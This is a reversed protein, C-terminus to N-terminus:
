DVVNYYQTQLRLTELYDDSASRWKRFGLGTLVGSGITIAYGGATLWGSVTDDEIYGASRMTVVTSSFVLGGILGLVGAFTRRVGKEREVYFVDLQEEFKADTVSDAGAIAPAMFLVSALVFSAVFRRGM